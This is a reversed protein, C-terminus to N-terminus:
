VVVLWAVMVVAAWMDSWLAWNESATRRANMVHKAGALAYFIAMVIAGPM